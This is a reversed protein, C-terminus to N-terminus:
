EYSESFHKIKPEKAMVLAAIIYLPITIGASSLTVIAWLLRVAFPNIGLYNAIGACVGFIQKDTRSRFLKRRQKLAYNDLGSQYSQDFTSTDSQQNRESSKFSEKPKKRKRRSFVGLAALAVGVGGFLTLSQINPDFAQISPGWGPFLYQIIFLTTISLIAFGAITPFNVLNVKEPAQQEQLFDNLASELDQDSYNIFDQQKSSRTRQSM